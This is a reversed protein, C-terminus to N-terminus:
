MVTMVCHYRMECSFNAQKPKEEPGGCSILINEWVDRLDPNTSGNIAKEVTRRCTGLEWGIRLTDSTANNIPYEYVNLFQGYGSNPFSIVIYNHSTTNRHKQRWKIGYLGSNSQSIQNKERFKRKRGQFRQRKHFERSDTPSPWSLKCLHRPIEKEEGPRKMSRM